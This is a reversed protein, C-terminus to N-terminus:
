FRLRFTTQIRRMTNASTPLGFQPSTIVTNIGAFTVRNLVNTANIRWELNWRGQIRFVRALSADLAFQSPGRISNRGANGWTGLAPTAFAAANVYSGPETPALPAGTLSPRVGVSGTGPIAVFAVPTLPLGSGATLQSTLTWDKYLSGWFGDVLTGGTVGVGTTYQVQFSFLHRQDFQSPGREADLNLWDQAIAMSSPRVSTNSFTAANDTSRALTYQATATFGAYLRRRLTFQGANRTSTGNSTVYVFGSPCAPCPNVAGPPVTNPLFAQMLHTGRDGFYAAIVTLSAPLDRQASLQWSHVSGARFDPDIAFTTTDALGAPFPNALTLPTAPTNQVNITRSFPPQQALMIGIPQYIGLNRYLGYSGRLVLSSGLMPRWSVGVRPQIDLRDPRLLSSPYSAGTLPGVPTTALVQDAASFGNAVDLNVLRGSKETYPAEYEWRVGLNMTLGASVRFDDEFYADYAAARLSTGTEGFAISSTSPIGLLFDALANGTAAGTFSLTGRPDPQSLVDVVNWRIDGGIKMNHRGRRVLAEAGGTHTTKVTHQHDGARLDAIDPFLLTPPGWHAPDQSNGTIGADRSVNTRNAFFPTTHASSRSLQYRASIQLRTSMRRTWALTANLQSQRSEDTFNFLSHSETTTQQFGFTGGLSTRGLGKNMSIQFSDQTTRSLIPTQFNAGRVTEGSPPPYLALLARAQPTIQGQPIVNGAFPLGTVPNRITMASQSFNGARQADTPMLASQTTANNSVAHQYSLVTQPGNTVLWPIRLPGGINVGVQLDSYSPDAATSGAFSYPRANWASNGLTATVGGTYLAALRPRNNGIARPQAFVSAAGNILSGTIIGSPEAASVEVSAPPVGPSGAVAPLPPPPAAAMQDLSQMTLTVDLPGQTFPVTINQTITVFGRMEVRITWAGDELDALRFAGTDDSQTALRREPPVSRIATVTAGPVALGAFLVRGTVESAAPAQQIANALILGAALASIKM